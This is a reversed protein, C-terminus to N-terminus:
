YASQITKTLQLCPVTNQSLDLEKEVHFRKGYM